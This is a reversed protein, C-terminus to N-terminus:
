IRGSEESDNLIVPEQCRFGSVPPVGHGCLFESQSDNSGVDAVAPGRAGMSWRYGIQRVDLKCRYASSVFFSCTLGGFLEARFHSEMIMHLHKLLSIQIDYSDDHPNGNVVLQRHIDQTRALV